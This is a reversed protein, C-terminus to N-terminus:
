FITNVIYLEACLASAAQESLATTNYTAHISALACLLVTVSGRLAFRQQQM